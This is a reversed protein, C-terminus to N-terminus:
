RSDSSREPQFNGSSEDSDYRNRPHLSSRSRFRVSQASRESAAKSGGDDDGSIVAVNPALSVLRFKVPQWLIVSLPITDTAEAHGDSSRILRAPTGRIVQLPIATNALFQWCRLDTSIEDSIWASLSLRLLRTGRTPDSPM